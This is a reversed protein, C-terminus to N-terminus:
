KTIRNSTKNFSFYGSTEVPFKWPFNFQPIFQMRGLVYYHKVYSEQKSRYVFIIDTVFLVFLFAVIKIEKCVFVCIYTTIYRIVYLQKYYTFTSIYLVYFQIDWNKFTAWKWMAVGAIEKQMRKEFKTQSKLKAYSTAWQCRTLYSKTKVSGIETTLRITQHQRLTYFLPFSWLVLFAFVVIWNCKIIQHEDFTGKQRALSFLSSFNDGGIITHRIIITTTNNKNISKINDHKNIANATLTM